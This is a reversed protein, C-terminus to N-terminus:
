RCTVTIECSLGGPHDDSDYSIDGTIRVRIIKQTENRRGKEKPYYEDNFDVEVSGGKIIIDSGDAM